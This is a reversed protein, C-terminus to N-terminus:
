VGAPTPAHSSRPLRRKRLWLYIGLASAAVGTPSLAILFRGMSREQGDDLRVDDPDSPQYLAQVASGVELRPRKGTIVVRYPVVHGEPTTIQYDQWSTHRTENRVHERTEHHGVVVARAERATRRYAEDEELMYLGGWALAVAMVVGVVTVVAFAIYDRRDRELM